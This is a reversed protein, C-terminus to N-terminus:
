QFCHCQALRGGRTCVSIMIFLIFSQACQHWDVAEPAFLYSLLYYLHNLVNIGISRRPHLSIYYYSYYLSHIIYYLIIKKRRSTKISFLSDFLKNSYASYATVLQDLVGLELFHGFVENQSKKARNICM